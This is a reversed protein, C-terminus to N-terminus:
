WVKCRKRCVTETMSPKEPGVILQRAKIMARTAGKAMASILKMLGGDLKLPPPANLVFVTNLSCVSTVTLHDPVVDFLEEVTTNHCTLALRAVADSLESSM